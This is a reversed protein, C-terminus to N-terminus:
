NWTDGILYRGASPLAPPRCPDSCGMHLLEAIRPLTLAMERRLRRAIRVKVVDGKRRSPLEAASCKAKELEERLIQRAIGEENEGYAIQGHGRKTRVSTRSLLRDVFDEAGLRWGRRLQALAVADQRGRQARM